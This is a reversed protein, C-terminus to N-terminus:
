AASRGKFLGEHSIYSSLEAEMPISTLQGNLEIFGYDSIKIPHESVSVVHMVVEPLVEPSITGMGVKFSDRKGRLQILLSWVGSIAAVVAVAHTAWKTWFDVDM